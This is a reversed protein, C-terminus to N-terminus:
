KWFGGIVLFAFVRVAWAVTLTFHAVAASYPHEQAKNVLDQFDVRPSLWQRVWLFSIEFWTIITITHLFVYIQPLNRGLDTYGARSLWTLVELALFGLATAVLMVVTRVGLRAGAKVENETIIDDDPQEGVQTTTSM